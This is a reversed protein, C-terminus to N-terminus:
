FHAIYRDYNLKYANSNQYQQLAQNIANLLPKSEKSIVVGIGFGFELTEGIAKFAGSSNAEWYLAAPADMLLMEVKGDRLGELALEITDFEIIQADKVGMKTIETAFITGEDVGIKKGELLQLSFPVAMAPTNLALFRSHSLLYPISFDVLESREPTITISSVAVDIQKNMVAPLLNAFKMIKFECTRNLAKCLYNMMDIDYGYVEKNAGQMIFPPEFSEIGISLPEDAAHSSHAILFCALILTRFVNM